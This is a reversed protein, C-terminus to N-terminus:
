FYAQHLYIKPGYHSYKEIWLYEIEEDHENTGRWRWEGDDNVEPKRTCYLWGYGAEYFEVGVDLKSIVDKTSM